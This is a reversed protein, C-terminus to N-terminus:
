LAAPALEARPLSHQLAPMAPVSTVPSPPHPLPPPLSAWVGVRPLRAATIVGRRAPPCGGENGLPSTVGPARAQGPPTTWCCLGRPREHGEPVPRATPRGPLADALPGPPGPMMARAWSGSGAGLLGAAGPGDRSVMDCHMVLAKAQETVTPSACIFRCPSRKHGGPQQSRM